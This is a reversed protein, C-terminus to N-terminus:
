RQGSPDAGSGGTGAVLAGHFAAVLLGRGPHLDPRVRSGILVEFM